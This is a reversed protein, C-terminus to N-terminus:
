CWEFDFFIDKKKRFNLDNASIGSGTEEYVEAPLNTLILGRCEGADSSRLVYIAGGPYSNSLEMDLGMHENFYNYDDIQVNDFDIIDAADALDVTRSLHQLINQKNTKIWNLFIKDNKDKPDPEFIAINLHQLFNASYLSNIILSNSAGLGIFALDYKKIECFM